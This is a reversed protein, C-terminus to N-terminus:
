KGASRRRLNCAVHGRSVSLWALVPLVIILTTASSQPILEFVSALAVGIIVTAWCLCKWIPSM